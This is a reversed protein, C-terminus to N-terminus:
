ALVRSHMCARRRYLLAHRAGRTVRARINKELSVASLVCACEIESMKVGGKQPLLAQKSKSRQEKPPRAAVCVSPFFFPDDPSALLRGIMHKGLSRGHDSEPFTRCPLCRFVTLRAHKIWSVSLESVAEELQISTCLSLDM